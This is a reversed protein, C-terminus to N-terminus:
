FDPYPRWGVLLRQEFKNNPLCSMTHEYDLFVGWPYATRTRQVVAEIEHFWSQLWEADPTKYTTIRREELVVELPDIKFATEKGDEYHIQSLVDGNISWTILAPGLQGERHLAGDKHFYIQHLEGNAHTSILSPLDGDREYPGYVKVIEWREDTVISTTKDFIVRVFFTKTNNGHNKPRVTATIKTDTQFREFVSYNQNIENNFDAKSRKNYKTYLEDIRM